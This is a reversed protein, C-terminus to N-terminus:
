TEELHRRPHVEECYDPDDNLTGEDESNLLEDEQNEELEVM